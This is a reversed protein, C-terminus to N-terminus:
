CARKKGVMTNIDVCFHRPLGEPNPGAGDSINWIRDHLCTRQKEGGLYTPLPTPRSRQLLETLSEIMPTGLLFYFRWTFMYYLDLLGSEGFDTHLAVCLVRTARM